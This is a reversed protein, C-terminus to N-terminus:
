RAGGANEDIFSIKFPTSTHYIFEFDCLNTAYGPLSGPDKYESDKWSAMEGCHRGDKQKIKNEFIKVYKLFFSVYTYETSTNLVSLHKSFYFAVM